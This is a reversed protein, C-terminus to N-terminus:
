RRRRGRGPTAARPPPGGCREVCRLTAPGAFSVNPWRQRIAEVCPADGSREDDVGFGTLTSSSDFRLTLSPTRGSSICGRLSQFTEALAPALREDEAVPVAGRAAAQPTHANVCAIPCAPGVSRAPSTGTAAVTAVPASADADAAPTATPAPPESGGSEVDGEARAEGGTGIKAKGSAACAVVLTAFALLCSGRLLAHRRVM